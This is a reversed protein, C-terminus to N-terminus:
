GNIEREAALARVAAIKQPDNIGSPNAKTPMLQKFTGFGGQGVAFIRALENPADPHDDVRIDWDPYAETSHIKLVASQRGRKDGGARDGALLSALLRDAFPQGSTMSFEDLCAQLVDGGVLMNGAVSIDAGHRHGCWDICDAGTHAAHQGNADMAHVQRLASGTDDEWSAALAASVSQGNEM